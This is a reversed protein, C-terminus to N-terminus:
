VKAEACVAKTGEQGNYMHLLRPHLSLRQYRGEIEMGTEEGGIGCECEGVLVAESGFLRRRLRFIEKQVPV